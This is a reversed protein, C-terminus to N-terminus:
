KLLTSIFLAVSWLALLGGLPGIINEVVYYLTTGLDNYIYFFSPGHNTMFNYLYIFTVGIGLLFLTQRSLTNSKNSKLENPSKDIKSAIDNGKTNEKLTAQAVSANDDM